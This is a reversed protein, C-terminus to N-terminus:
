LNVFGRFQSSGEMVPGALEELPLRPDSKVLDNIFVAGHRLNVSWIRQKKWIREYVTFGGTLIRAGMEVSKDVQRAVKEAQMVSAFPGINTEYVAPDGPKFKKLNEM